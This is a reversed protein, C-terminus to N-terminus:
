MYVRPVGGASCIEDHMHCIGYSPMCVYIFLARESSLQLRLKKEKTALPYRAPGVVDVCEFTFSNPEACSCEFFHEILRWYFARAQTATACLRGHCHNSSVVQVVRRRARWYVASPSVAAMHMYAYACMAYQMNCINCLQM